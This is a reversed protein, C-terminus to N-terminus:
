KVLDQLDEIHRRLDAVEQRLDAIEARLETVADPSASRAVHAPRPAGAPASEPLSAVHATLEELERDKYLGHTVMQGRGEPTLEVVLRKEVLSALVPRLADLSAIPEMRAARGRLEGVTQEGRLLLEAMVALEVKDVGLWEYMRHRYKYVRGGGQIETVAGMDRLQELVEEVEDATLNM